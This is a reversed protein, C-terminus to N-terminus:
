CSSQSNRQKTAVARLWWAPKRSECHAKFPAVIARELPDSLVEMGTKKRAFPSVVGQRILTDRLAMIKSHFVFPSKLRELIQGHYTVQINEFGCRSLLRTMPQKDFFLLHPEDISKHEYDLCPVEIFLAGRSRLHDTAEMLFEFPTSIHELVHSMVVLDVSPVTENRPYDTILKVGIQQLFAHCSTDTECGFYETEPFSKLWREAFYGTGPGFELLRSVSIDNAIIYRSIHSCRLAAIGSFFAVATPSTHKGGHAATFYNANYQDLDRDQPMPDAFVMGCTRCLVRKLGDFTPHSGRFLGQVEVESGSCVPCFVSM